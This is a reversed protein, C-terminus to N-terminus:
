YLAVGEVRVKDAAIRRIGVSRFGMYTMRPMYEQTGARCIYTATCKATRLFATNLEGSETLIEAHRVVIQQGAEAGEIHLRVVGAFNQGMDYIVEGAATRTVAVPAFVEHARVPAGCAAEISPHIKVREVAAAHWHAKDLDVTADYTEGAYFEAFRVNGERTM